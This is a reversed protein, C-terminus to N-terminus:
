YIFIASPFDIKNQSSYIAWNTTIALLFLCQIQNRDDCQILNFIFTIKYVIQEM